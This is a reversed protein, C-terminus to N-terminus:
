RGRASAWLAQASATLHRFSEGERELGVTGLVAILVFTVMHLMLAYAFSVDAPINFIALAAVAAAEYLGAGSPSSPISLGLAMACTVFFGVYWPADPKFALLFLYTAVGYGLWIVASWLIGAILRRGGASSVGRLFDDARHLLSGRWRPALRSLWSDAIAIVRERWAAAVFLGAVGLFAAAASLTGAQVLLGNHPVFPFVLLLMGFVSLVDLLREILITSLSQMATVPSNRSALYARGFEGIRLPLVNNLLNGANSIWFSRSASLRNGLLARWRLGRIWTAALLMLLSPLMWWYNASAAAALLNVLSVNKLILALAAASVALGFIIRWNIKM